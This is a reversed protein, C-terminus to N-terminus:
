IEIIYICPMAKGDYGKRSNERVEPVEFALSRPPKTGVGKSFFICGDFHHENNMKGLKAPPVVFFRATAVLSNKM